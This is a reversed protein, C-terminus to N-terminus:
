DEDYDTVIDTFLATTIRVQPSLISCFTDGVDSIKKKSRLDDRDAAWFLVRGMSTIALIHVFGEAHRDARFLQKLRVPEGVEGNCDAPDFEVTMLKKASCFDQKKSKLDKKRKKNRATEAKDNDTTSENDVIRMVYMMGTNTGILVIDDLIFSMSSLVVGEEDLDIVVPDHNDLSHITIFKSYLVIFKDGSPSFQVDLPDGDLESKSAESFTGLNFLKMSGKKSRGKMEGAAVSIAFLNSPHVALASVPYNEKSPFVQLPEHYTLGKWLMVDGNEAGTLIFEQKTQDDTFVSMASITGSHAYRSELERMKRLNYVKIIEDNGGSLLRGSHMAALTKISGSHSVYQFLPPQQLAVAVDACRSLDEDQVPSEGEKQITFEVATDEDDSIKKNDGEEVSSSSSSIDEDALEEALAKRATWFYGKISGDSSGIVLLRSSM